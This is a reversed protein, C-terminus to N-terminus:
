LAQWPPSGQYFRSTSKDRGIGVLTNLKILHSHAQSFYYLGTADLKVSPLRRKKPHWEIEMPDEKHNMDRRTSLKM